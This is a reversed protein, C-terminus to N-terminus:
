KAEEREMKRMYQRVRLWNIALHLTIVVPLGLIPLYTFVISDWFGIWSRRFLSGLLCGMIVVFTGMTVAGQRIRRAEKEPEKLYDIEWKKWWLWVRPWQKKEEDIELLEWGCEPCTNGTSGRLDYDCRGCRMPNAEFQKAIEKEGPRKLLEILGMGVFYVGMLGNLGYGWGLKYGVGIGMVIFIGGCIFLTRAKRRRQEEISVKGEAVSTHYKLQRALMVISGLLTGAIIVYSFWHSM